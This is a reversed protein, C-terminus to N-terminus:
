RDRGDDRGKAYPDERWRLFDYKTSSVRSGSGMYHREVEPPEPSRTIRPPLAQAFGCPRRGPVVGGDKRHWESM